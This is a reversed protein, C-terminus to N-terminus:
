DHIEFFSSPGLELGNAVFFSEVRLRIRHRMSPPDLWAFTLYAIGERIQGVVPVDPLIGYNDDGGVVRFYVGFQRIDYASSVPLSVSVSLMGADDLAMGPQAVGRTLSLVKVMPKPIPEPTTGDKLLHRELRTGTPKFSEAGHFSAAYARALTLAAMVLPIAGLRILASKMEGKGRLESRTVGLSAFM